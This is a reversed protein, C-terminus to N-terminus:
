FFFSEMTIEIRTFFIQNSLKCSGIWVVTSKDFNVKLGSFLAYLKLVQICEVFSQRSGDLFFTTDDAYQSILVEEDLVRIGRIDKNEHIMVSLIEACLLFIYPSIPDGQRTGRQVDFWSSYRGNVYVCSRINKYFTSIWRRMDPGFNFACLCKEIFSWAVSDFAKAQDAMFLMGPVNNANCYVLTDYLLRVNEGIFRGKLFGTQQDGILQPLFRKM